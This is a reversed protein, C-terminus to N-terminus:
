EKRMFTEKRKLNVRKPNNKLKRKFITGIWPNRYQVLFDM